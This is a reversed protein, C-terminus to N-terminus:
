AIAYFLYTAGNINVYPSDDDDYAAVTFGASYPDIHDYTSEQAANENLQLNPDNGSVIGRVTDFVFWHGGLDYRKILVFRAGSSFGCDINQPNGDSVFSGVKSVGPATAFLYAIYTVNNGNAMANTGVTFVSSTPTTDNWASTLTQAERNTNLQLYKTAGSGSTYVGWNGTTSRKKVWIMEPVASLSHPVTRASGTGLFGVCDFYSPARKWSYSMVNNTAAWWSQNLNVVNSESNFVTSPGAGDSATTNTELYKTTLRSLLYRPSSSTMTNINMDVNFGTNYVNSNSNGSYSNVHFVKTADDPTNLSGRRIAMFIYTQGNENTEDLTTATEFGTATFNIINFASREASNTNPFLESTNGGTPVGRMNDFMEWNQGSRTASKVMLWQPEFGLNISNGASGTGTYSGCKIIDQDGDPGFEGDNNNHAFLYAVYTAGNTNSLAGDGVTFHTATPATDNLFGDRNSQAFNENLELRYDEPDTGGNAGRHYVAWNDAASTKKFIIMGPVSGLNHAVTKGATGNGTYTVIDFFKPSKRFTWSVYESVYSNSVNFKWTDDAGLNYGTSNFATIGVSTTAEADAGNAELYKTNGRVTDVLGHGVGYDRAKTWVLGGEGSLDIGNTITQNANTGSYLTTSFVEDVDLGAGGASSAAAAVIKSVSM